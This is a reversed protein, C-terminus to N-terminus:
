ANSGSSFGNTKCPEALGHMRCFNVPKCVETLCPHLHATKLSQQHEIGGSAFKEFM